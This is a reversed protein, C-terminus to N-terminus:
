DNEIVVKAGHDELWEETEGCVTCFGNRCTHIIRSPDRPSM